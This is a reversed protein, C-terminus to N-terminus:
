DSPVIAYEKVFIKSDAGYAVYIKNGAWALHPARVHGALAGAPVDDTVMTQGMLNWNPDFAKLMVDARFVYEETTPRSLDGTIHQYSVFYLGNEFLLGMAFEENANSVTSITKNDIFDWNEDYRVV